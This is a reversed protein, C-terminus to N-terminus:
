GFATIQTHFVFQEVYFLKPRLRPTSAELCIQQIDSKIQSNPKGAILPLQAYLTFDPIDWPIDRIQQLV